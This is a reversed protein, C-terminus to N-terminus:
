PMTGIVVIRKPPIFDTLSSLAIVSVLYGVQGASQIAGAQSNSLGWENQLLPMAGSFNMFVLLAGFQTGSLAYLWVPFKKKM